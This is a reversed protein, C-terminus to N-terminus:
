WRLWKFVDAIGKFDSKNSLDSSIISTRMFLKQPTYRSRKTVSQKQVNAVLLKFQFLIHTRQLLVMIIISSSKKQYPCKALNIAVKSPLCSLRHGTTRHCLQGFDIVSRTTVHVVGRCGNAM